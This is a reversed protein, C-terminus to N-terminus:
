AMRLSFGSGYRSSSPAENPANWATASAVRWGPRALRATPREPAYSAVRHSSPELVLPQEPRQALRLEHDRGTYVVRVHGSRARDHGRELLLAHRRRQM